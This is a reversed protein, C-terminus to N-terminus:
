GRGSADRQRLRHVAAGFAGAILLGGAVLAPVSATFAGGEGARVGHQIVAGSCSSGYPEPCPPPSPTHGAGSCSSGYPEPCPPPSPTHGAGSCSSGYPEPCASPSSGHRASGRAVDLPASWPEGRGGSPAPCAGDVTWATDDGTGDLGEFDAAPAIRTTGRYAAGGGGDGDEGAVKRLEVIGDAFAESVAELTEPAGGGLAGCSVSVTVSGGPEAAAPSVEAAPDAAGHPAAALVAAGSLVAASLLRATRRM